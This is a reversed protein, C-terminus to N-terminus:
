QSGDKSVLQAVSPATAATPTPPERVGAALYFHEKGTSAEPQLSGQFTADTIVPSGNLAALLKASQQSRGQLLVQSSRDVSFRELWAKDPLRMTVDKLVSLMTGAHRKRKALFAAAGVSDRLQQCLLAIQQANRQM